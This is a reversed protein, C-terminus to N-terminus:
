GCLGIAIRMGQAEHLVQTLRDDLSLHSESEQKFNALTKKNRRRFENAEWCESLVWCIEFLIFSTVSVSAPFTSGFAVYLLMFPIGAFAMFLLQQGTFQHRFHPVVGYAIRRDRKPTITTQKDRRNSM